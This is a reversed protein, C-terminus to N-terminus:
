EIPMIDVHPDENPDPETTRVLSTVGELRELNAQGKTSGLEV